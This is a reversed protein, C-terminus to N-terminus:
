PRLFTGENKEINCVSIQGLIVWFWFFHRLLVFLLVLFRESVTSYILSNFSGAGGLPDGLNQLGASPRDPPPLAVSNPLDALHHQNM